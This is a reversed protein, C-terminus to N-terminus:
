GNNNKNFNYSLQHTPTNVIIIVMKSLKRDFDAWERSSLYESNGDDTLLKVYNEATIPSHEYTILNSSINTPIVYDDSRRLGNVLIDEKYVFWEKNIYDATTIDGYSNQIAVLMEYHEKIRRLNEIAIDIDTYTTPLTVKDKEYWNNVNYSLLISYKHKTQM